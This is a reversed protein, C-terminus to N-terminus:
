SGLIELLNPRHRSTILGSKFGNRRLWFLVERAGPILPPPQTKDLKEWDVYMRRALSEGVGLCQMLLEIGPLGWHTFLNVRTSRKFPVDHLACVVQIRRLGERFSDLLVGDLDMLIGQIIM